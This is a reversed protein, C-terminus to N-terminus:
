AGGDALYQRYSAVYEVVGARLDAYRPEYGLQRRAPEVDLRGRFLVKRQDDESLGPGIEVDAGPIVECVLEAVRGATVLPRGTAAYFVYEALAEPRADLAAQALQAVDAVHTYDRAFDRGQGFRTPQGRVSNEVMPKIFNPVRMGLGYVASPRIIVFDLGFHARYAFCFAEAAAKSAGYFGSGPGDDGLIIPHKADIPEYQIRPLVGITSFYVLRRLGLRRVTELLNLTGGVNVALAERPRRQLAEFSVIAATHVIDTVAHTECAARVAPEDEVSGEVVQLEPALPGLVWTAEPGLPARDFLVVRDGHEVLRRALHSGIFGTGGTILVTRGSM